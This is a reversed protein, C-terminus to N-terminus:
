EKLKTITSKTKNKDQKNNKSSNKTHIQKRNFLNNSQKKLNTPKNTQKFKGTLDLIAKFFLLNTMNM